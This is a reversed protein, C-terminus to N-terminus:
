FVQYSYVTGGSTHKWQIWVHVIVQTGPCNASTNFGVSKVWGGYDTSNSGGKASCYIKPRNYWGGTNQTWHESSSTQDSGQSIQEGSGINLTTAGAPGALAFVMWLSGFVAIIAAIVKRKYPM